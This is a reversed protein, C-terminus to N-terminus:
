CYDKKTPPQIAGDAEVRYLLANVRANSEWPDVWTLLINYRYIYTNYYYASVTRFSARPTLIEWLGYRM